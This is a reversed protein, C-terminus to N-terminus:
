EFSREMVGTLIGGSTPVDRPGIMIYPAVSEKEVIPIAAIFPAWVGARPRVEIAFRRILDQGEHIALHYPKIESTLTSHPRKEAAACIREKWNEDNISLYLRTRIAAPILSPDPDALFLAIVPFSDGRARLARDLAWALEERCPESALSNNTAILLWADSEEASCIHREIQDWLRLGASINLRDLKVILGARSLEQAIFDVDGQDNDIHSYSIWITAM